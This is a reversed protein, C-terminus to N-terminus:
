SVRSLRLQCDVKCPMYGGQQSRVTREVDAPISMALTRVVEAAVGESCALMARADVQRILLM